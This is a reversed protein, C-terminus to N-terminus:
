ARLCFLVFFSYKQVAVSDLEVRQIVEEGPARASLGSLGLIGDLQIQVCFDTGGLAIWGVGEGPGLM